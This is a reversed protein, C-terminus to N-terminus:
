TLRQKKNRAHRYTAGIITYLQNAVSKSSDAAIESRILKQVYKEVKTGNEIEDRGM